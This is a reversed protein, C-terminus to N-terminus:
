LSNYLINSKPTVPCSGKASFMLIEKEKVMRLVYNYVPKEYTAYIEEFNLKKM